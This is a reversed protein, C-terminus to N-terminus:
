LFGGEFYIVFYFVKLVAFPQTLLRAVQKFLSCLWADALM